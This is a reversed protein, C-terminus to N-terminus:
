SISPRCKRPRNRIVLKRAEEAWLVSSAVAACILWQVPTISTVGVFRQAPGVHMVAVHLVSVAGVAIWLWRNRLTRRSFVSGRDSRSNLLNFMQFLVFTTFAMATATTAGGTGVTDPAMVLVALTGLAMVTAALAVTVWRAPTLIQEGPPRPSRQMVDAEPPDAGLAMAPPGDMILNVWLIAVATFPAGTGVGFAATLLFLLAFGLSTSLQFRVFHVIADYIARGEEVAHVITTFNDDALVMAAAQKTVDTGTRGMAVGIDARELAPADNVGDGTMAVVDGRGRFAEVLRLKHEPSVRAYIAVDDLRDALADDDLRDLEAGTLVNGDLGLSRGIAQATTAHDGTIMRVTIGAAHATEIASRAEPRAPDVIGVLALLTLDGILPGLDTGADELHRVALALVRIGDAALRDHHDHLAALHPGIDTVRTADTDSMDIHSCRDVLVDFAGKVVLLRGEHDRDSAHLTAMFKTSSEFPIETLRPHGRRIHDADRGGALSLLALETPDGVRQDGHATADNCLIAADAVHDLHPPLPRAVGSGTDSVHHVTGAHVVDHVTMRNLTLTGTKDTCIVNTCGLTEVAALRKVIANRRAMRQVGLALTVATVAPLGEPISAVALAVASEFVAGFPQGRVLGLAMVAAVVVGALAALRGALRHLQHQLPTIPVTGHGLLGAIRGIETSMGTATVEYEARGRTVSTHMFVEGHRDGLAANASAEVEASKEVPRSEGTLASEDIELSHGSRLRGDAPVRDGADLLVIDGPVLDRAAVDSVRGDRRVQAREPTMARLADLARGARGEQVLGLATNLMVVAVIVLPTKAERNVILAVVAAALLVLVMRDSLAGAIRRWLPTTPAAALENPGVDALVSAAVASSLGPHAPSSPPQVAPTTSV